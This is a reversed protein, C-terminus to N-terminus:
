DIPVIRLSHGAVADDMSHLVVFLRRNAADYAVGRVQLRGPDASTNFEALTSVAGDAGVRFLRGGRGGLFLTGDSAAALQDINDASRSAPDSSALNASFSAVTTGQEASAPAALVTDLAFSLLKGTAQDSVFLTRGVTVVGVPKSLGTVIERESASGDANVTMMSVGGNATSASPSPPTTFWSDLLEGAASVAIAIRRRAPDLGALIRAAPADVEIATGANGFGFRTTYFRQGSTRTLGGLSTQTPTAPPQLAPLAAYSSFTTTGDGDWRLIANSTDDTLYLRNEAADWHVGNPDAALAITTPGRDASADDDDGCGALMSSVFLLLALARLTATHLPLTPM